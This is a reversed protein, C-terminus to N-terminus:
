VFDSERKADHEEIEEKVASTIIASLIAFLIWPFVLAALILTTGKVLGQESVLSPIIILVAINLVIPILMFRRKKGAM